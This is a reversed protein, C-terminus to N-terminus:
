LVLFSSQLKVFFYDQYKKIEEFTEKYSFMFRQLVLQEWNEGTIKKNRKM